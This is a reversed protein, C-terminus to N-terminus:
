KNQCEKGETIEKAIEDIGKEEITYIKIGMSYGYQGDAKLRQVFKVVGDVKGKEYYMEHLLNQKEKPLEGVNCYKRRWDLCEDALIRLKDYKERTMAVANEPIKPQYKELLKEAVLYSQCDYSITDKDNFECCGCNRGQNLPCSLVIRAIETAIEEIQKQKDM